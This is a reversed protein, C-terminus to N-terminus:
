YNTQNMVLRLFPIKQFRRIDKAIIQSQNKLNNNTFLIVQKQILNMKTTDTESYYEINIVFDTTNDFNVKYIVYNTSTINYTDYKINTIRQLGTPDKGWKIRIPLEINDNVLCVLTDQIKDDDFDQFTLSLNTKEQKANLAVSIVSILLLISLLKFSNRKM